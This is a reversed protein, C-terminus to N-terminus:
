LCVRAQALFYLRQCEGLGSRRAIREDGAAPYFAMCSM